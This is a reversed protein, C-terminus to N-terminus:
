VFGAFADGVSKWFDDWGNPRSPDTKNIPDNHGYEYWNPGDRYGIPDTQMFRGLAASYLRDKYSYLGVEPLWVQGTYQYRGVNSAGQM